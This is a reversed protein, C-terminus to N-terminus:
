ILPRYISNADTITSFILIDHLTEYTITSTYYLLHISGNIYEGKNAELYRAEDAEQRLKKLKNPIELFFTSTYFRPLHDKLGMMNYVTIRLTLRDHSHHLTHSPNTPIDSTEKSYVCIHHTSIYIWSHM